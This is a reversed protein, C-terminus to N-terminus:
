LYMKLRPLGAFGVFVSSGKYIITPYVMFCTLILYLDLANIVLVKYYAM